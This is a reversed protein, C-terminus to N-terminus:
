RSLKQKSAELTETVDGVVTNRQGTEMVIQKEVSGGEIAGAGIVSWSKFDTRALTTETNIVAHKTKNDIALIALKSTGIARSRDYFTMKPISVGTTILPVENIGVFLDNRDTGVAGSSIELTVDADDAKAVLSCGNAM